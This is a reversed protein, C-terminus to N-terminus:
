QITPGEGEGQHDQAFLCVTLVEGMRGASKIGSALMREAEARAAPEDLHGILDLIRYDDGGGEQSELEAIRRALEKM